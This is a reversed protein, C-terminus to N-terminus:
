DFVAPRFRPRWRPVSLRYREYEPGHKELLLTEEFSAIKNYFAFIAMLIALGVISATLVVLATYFLLSGLYLPHRVRAFAGTKLLIGRRRIEVSVVRHGKLALFIALAILITGIALRVWLPFVRAPFTSIRGIFSDWGWFVLFVGLAAIQGIDGWPHEGDEASPHDVTSNIKNM